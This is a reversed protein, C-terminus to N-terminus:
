VKKGSPHEIGFEHHMAVMDHEGEDYKLRKALLHSFYDLSSGKLNSPFEVDKQLLYHIASWVNEAV